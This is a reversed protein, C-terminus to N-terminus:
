ISYADTLLKRTRPRDHVHPEKTTELSTETIGHLHWDGNEMWRDLVGLRPQFAVEVPAGRDCRRLRVIKSLVLM